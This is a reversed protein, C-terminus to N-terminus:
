FAVLIGGEGAYTGISPGIETLIIQATKYRKEVMEKIQLAKEECNSHAIGLIKQELNVGYEEILDILRKVTNKSGRVKEIVDISGEFSNKMILKVSLVSAIKGRVRDLRGGKIVNELTDLFILIHSHDIVHKIKTILEEFHFSEKILEAAQMLIVGLGISANKADLAIMEVHPYEEKYTDVAMKASQYTSSLQSSLTIVIGQDGPRMVKEFQDLFDQPSPAATKPLEEQGKMKQYFENVSLNVRDLFHDNQFSIHLPIVHINYKKIIQEPLDCSSDTFLNISM